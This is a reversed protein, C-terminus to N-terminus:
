VKEKIAEKSAARKRKREESKAREIERKKEGEREIAVSAFVVGAILGLVLMVIM